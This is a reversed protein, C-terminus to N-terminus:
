TQSVVLFSLLATEAAHLAPSSPSPVFTISNPIYPSPVTSFAVAGTNYNGLPAVYGYNLILGGAISNPDPSASWDRLTDSSNDPGCTLFSILTQWFSGSSQGYISGAHLPPDFANANPDQQFAILLANAGTPVSFACFAITQGNGSLGNATITTSESANMSPCYFGFQEATSGQVGIPVPLWTNGSNDTVGDQNGEYIQLFIFGMLGATIVGTAVAVTDFPGGSIPNSAFNWSDELFVIGPM